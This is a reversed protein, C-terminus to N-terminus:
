GPRDVNRCARDVATLLTPMRNDGHMERILRKAEAHDIGRSTVYLPRASTGRYVETDTPTDTFRTKAVGIVPVRGDLARFVHAGLGDNEDAGLTVYGDIVLTAPTQGFAELLQMICPLERAFFRGPQYPAVDDIRVSVTRAVEASAWNAFAIGAAVASEDGVYQVDVALHLQPNPNTNLESM